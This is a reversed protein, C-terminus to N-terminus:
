LGRITRFLVGQRRSFLVERGDRLLFILGGDKLLRPQKVQSLNVLCDRSSRFFLSSDLRRECEMLSRPILFKDKAFHVLTTNRFAELVSIDEIRALRCKSDDTLLVFDERHFIHPKSAESAPSGDSKDSNGNFFPVHRKFECYPLFTGPRMQHNMASQAVGNIQGAKPSSTEALDPFAEISQNHM